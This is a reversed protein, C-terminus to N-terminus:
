PKALLKRPYRCFPEAGRDTVLFSETIELGWDDQWIAPILHFTMGAALVSTDGPRLSMTREGWDPPYSLGISYGCRSEKEIGYRAIVRRWAAEVDECRQGPRAAELAAAIGEIVAQEVERFKQPPEGLYITRSLPCHYRRYCGAIEFFTGEDKKFPREDWTLHPASADAGSPLLPVIAPYDGGHGDAGILATRYIEAVLENKPLGPEILEFIRAHMAEVIRAARRMYDLERPSKVARQWNVLSTADAFTANPLHRQLAAYCAASFYYNDMEVGIRRREWGRARIVADALHDMPHREASQVYHDPYGVIQDEGMFVTRKAGNADQGRGYWLPEGGDALLVCQHVYFSWGDYGTLWAMNSPDTVILLEIGREAMARRTKAIRAEYEARGFSAGEDTV